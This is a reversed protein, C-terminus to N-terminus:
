QKWAPNAKETTKLLRKMLRKEQRKQEIDDPNTLHPYMEINKWEQRFEKYMMKLGCYEEFSTPM